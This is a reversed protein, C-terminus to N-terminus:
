RAFNYTLRTGWISILIAATLLRPHISGNSLYDHITFHWAYLAPLISWAKDLLYIMKIRKTSISLFPLENILIKGVQSYNKTIESLSYHIVSLGSAFYLASELPDTDKYYSILQTPDNLCSTFFSLVVKFSTINSLFRQLVSQAHNWTAMQPFSPEVHTLWHLISEKGM